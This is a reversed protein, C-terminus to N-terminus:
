LEERFSLTSAFSKSSALITQFTRLPINEIRPTSKLEFHQRLAINIHRTDRSPTAVLSEDLYRYMPVAALLPM